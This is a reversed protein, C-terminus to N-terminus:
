ENTKSRKKKHQLKEHERRKSSSSENANTHSQSQMAHSDHESKRALENGDSTTTASSALGEGTLHMLVDDAMKFASAM